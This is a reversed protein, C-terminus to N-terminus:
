GREYDEVHLQVGDIVAYILLECEVRDGDEVARPNYTNILGISKGFEV